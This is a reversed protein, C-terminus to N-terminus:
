LPSAGYRSRRRPPDPFRSATDTTVGAPPHLISNCPAKQGENTLLFLTAPERRRDLSCDTDSQGAHVHGIGLLMDPALTWCDLSDDIGEVPQIVLIPTGPTLVPPLSGPDEFARRVEPQVLLDDM